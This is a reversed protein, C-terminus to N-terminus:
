RDPTGTARADFDDAQPPAVDGVREALPRAFRLLSVLVKGPEEAMVEHASHEFWIFHKAPAKVRDFWERALESNL